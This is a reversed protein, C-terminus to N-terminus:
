VVNIKNKTFGYIAYDSFQALFMKIINMHDAQDM